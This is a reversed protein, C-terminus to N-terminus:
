TYMGAAQSHTVTHSSCNFLLEESCTNLELSRLRSEILRSVVEQLPLSPCPWVCGLCLSLCILLCSTFSCPLANQSPPWHSPSFFSFYSSLTCSCPFLLLDFHLFNQNREHPSRSPSNYLTKCCIDASRKLELKKNGKREDASFQLM